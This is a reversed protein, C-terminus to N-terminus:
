FRSLYLKGNNLYDIFNFIESSDQVKSGTKLVEPFLYKEPFISKSKVAAGCGSTTARFPNDVKQTKVLGYM